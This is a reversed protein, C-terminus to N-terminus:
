PSAPVLKGGFAGYIFDLDFSPHLRYSYSYVGGVEGGQYFSGELKNPGPPIDPRPISDRITSVGTMDNHFFDGENDVSVNTWTYGITGPAEITMDLQGGAAGSTYNLEFINTSGGAGSDLTVGQYVGTVPNTDRIGMSLSNFSRGSSFQNDSSIIFISNDLWAGYFSAYRTPPTDSEVFWKMPASMRVREAWSYIGGPDFRDWESAEALLTKVGAQCATVGDDCSAGAVSGSRLQTVHDMRDISTPLERWTILPYEIVQTPPTPPPTPTTPTVVQVGVIEIRLSGAILTVAGDDAVTIRCNESGATCRVVTEMGDGEGVTRSEGVPITGTQLTHGTPLPVSGPGYTRTPTGGGPTATPTPIGGGGGGVAPGDSMSAGKGGCGALMLAGALALILAPLRQMRRMRPRAQIPHHM